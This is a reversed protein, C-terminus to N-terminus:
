SSPIKELKIYRQTHMQYPINIKFFYPVIFLIGQGM